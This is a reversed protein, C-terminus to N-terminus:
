SIFSLYQLTSSTPKNQTTFMYLSDSFHGQHLVKGLYDKVMGVQVTDLGNYKNNHQSLNSADNTLHHTAGTSAHWEIEWNTPNGNNVAVMAQKPMDKPADVFRVFLLPSILTETPRTFAVVIAESEEELAVVVVRGKTAVALQTRIQVIHGRSKSSFTDDLARWVDYSTTYNVVQALVGKTLSMLTSLILNDQKVWQSSAPNLRESVVNTKPHSM